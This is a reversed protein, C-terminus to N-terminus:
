FKAQVTEAESGGGALTRYLRQCPYGFATLFEGEQFGFRRYLARAATGLADGERYTVVSAEGGEPMAALADALLRAAVGRRRCEPAVALFEIERNERSFAICGVVANGRRAVLVADREMGERMQAAFAQREFGPFHAKMDEALRVMSRLDAESPLLSLGPASEAFGGDEPPQCRERADAAGREMGGSDAPWAEIGKGCPSMDVAFSLDLEAEARMSGSKRRDVGNVM